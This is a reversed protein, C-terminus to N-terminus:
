TAPGLARGRAPCAGMVQELSNRAVNADRLFISETVELELRHADLGSVSLAQVVTSAFEPELLQEPSVNVAVRVHRPWRTAERCAQELVWAGIAAILLSVAAGLAGQPGTVEEDPHARVAKGLIGVTLLVGFAAFVVAEITLSWLPSASQSARM